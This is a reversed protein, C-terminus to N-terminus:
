RQASGRSLRSVPRHARRKKVYGIEGDSETGVVGPKHRDLANRKRDAPSLRESDDAFATGALRSHGHRQRPQVFPGAGRKRAPDPQQALLNEAKRGGIQPIQAPAADRHNELIRHRRQVRALGDAILNGFSEENTTLGVAPAGASAGHLKEGLDSQWLGPPARAEIRV